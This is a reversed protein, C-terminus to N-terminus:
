AGARADALLEADSRTVGIDAYLIEMSTRISSGVTARRADASVLREPASAPAAAVDRALLALLVCVVFALRGRRLDLTKGPVQRTM